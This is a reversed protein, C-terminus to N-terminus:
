QKLRAKVTPQNQAAELGLVRVGESIGQQIGGTLGRLWWLAIDNIAQGVKGNNMQCVTQSLRIGKQGLDNATEVSKSLVRQTIKHEREYQYAYGIFLKLYPLLFNLLIFIYFVTKATARHLLSPSQTPPENSRSTHTISPVRDHANLSNQLDQISKPMAAQISLSEEPTLNTPLGRLLYSIGHIYLQRTLLPSGDGEEHAIMGSEQYSLFLLNRGRNAYKWNIGSETERASLASAPQLPGHEFYSLNERNEDEEDEFFSEQHVSAPRSTYCPPPTVPPSGTPDATIKNVSNTRRRIDKLSRRISPLKPFHSQIMWPLVAYLM